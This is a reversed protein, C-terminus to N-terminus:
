IRHNFYNSYCLLTSGKSMHFRHCMPCRSGVVVPNGFYGDQGQGGRGIYVDYEEGRNINVVTTTM